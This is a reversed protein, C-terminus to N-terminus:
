GQNPWNRIFAQKAESLYSPVVANFTISQIERPFLFYNGLSHDMNFLGINDPDIKIQWCKGTQPDQSREILDITEITGTNWVRERIQSGGGHSTMIDAVDPSRPTAVQIRCVGKKDVTIGMTTNLKELEEPDETKFAIQLSKYQLPILHLQELFDSRVEFMEGSRKTKAANQLEKLKSAVTKETVRDDIDTRVDGSKKREEKAM